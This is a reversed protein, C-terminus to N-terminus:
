LIAWIKSTCTKTHHTHFKEWIGKKRENSGGSIAQKRRHHLFKILKSSIHWHWTFADSCWWWRPLWAPYFSLFVFRGPSLLCVHILFLVYARMLVINLHITSAFHPLAFRVLTRRVTREPVFLYSGFWSIFSRLSLSFISIIKLTNTFLIQQQAPTRLPLPLLLSQPAFTKRIVIAHPMWRSSCVFVNTRESLRDSKFSLFFLFSPSHSGLDKFHLTEYKIEFLICEFIHRGKEAWLFICIFIHVIM